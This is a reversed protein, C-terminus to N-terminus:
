SMWIQTLSSLEELPIWIAIQLKLSSSAAEHYVARVGARKAVPGRGVRSGRRRTGRRRIPM